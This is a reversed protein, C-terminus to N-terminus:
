INNKWKCGCHECIYMFKMNIADYKIYKIRVEKADCLENKCTTNPNNTISPLTIDHTIYKNNNIFVSKDIVDKDDTYVLRTTTDMNSKYSCSKCCHYLEDTEDNIYLYLMNDCDKCFTVDM